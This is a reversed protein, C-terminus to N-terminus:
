LPITYDSPEANITVTAQNDCNIGYNITRTSLGTPTLTVVGANIFNCNSMTTIEEEITGTYIVGVRDAGSFEGRASFIDDSTITPTAAGSVWQVTRDSNWTINWGDQLDWIRLNDVYVVYNNNGSGNIGKNTVTLIGEVKQDNVYYNSLTTVAVTGSDSYLGTFTCNITGRRAVGDGGVCNTQGFDISMTKPSALTDTTIVACSLNKIGQETKAAEDVLKFLDHHMNECYLQAEVATKSEDKDRDAERCSAFFITCLALVAIPTTFNRM